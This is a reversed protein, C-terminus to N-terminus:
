GRIWDEISLGRIREYHRINGTVLIAAHALCIAGIFLDADALGQGVKELDAKISGFRQVSRDDLGAVTLTTLFEKVAEAKQQPTRSKAAGYYLEAATIWTTAVRDLTNRRRTIVRTNHRLIEICVDTDLIRM